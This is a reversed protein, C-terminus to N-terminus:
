PTCAKYRKKDYSVALARKKDDGACKRGTDLVNMRSVLWDLQKEVKSSHDAFSSFTSDFDKMMTALDVSRAPGRLRICGRVFEGISLAGSNDEDILHFLHHAEGRSIDIQAFYEKMAQTELQGEFEEWSIQVDGDMDAKTFQRKLVRILENDRDEKIIRQAGEVFVGTVLNLMVLTAFAIYLGFLFVSISSAKGLPDTLDGWDKGGTIAQYLSLISQEISGWYQTIDSDRDEVKRMHEAVLETFYVAVGFMLMLLLFVTWFFSSMSAAVLYVMSKLAPVLRVMRLLRVVRGLRIMRLVGFSDLVNGKSVLGIILDICQLAVVIFDFVNWQWGIMYFFRLRFACIRLALELSFLCCFVAEFVKYTDPTTEDLHSSMYNVQLATVLANM